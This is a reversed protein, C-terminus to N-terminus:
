EIVDAFRTAAIYKRARSSKDKIAIRTGDARIRVVRGVLCLKALAQNVSSRLSTPAADSTYGVEPLAAAIEETTLPEAYKDLSWIATIAEALNKPTPKAEVQSRARASAGRAPAEPPTLGLLGDFSSLRKKQQEVLSQAYSRIAAVQSEVDAVVAQYAQRAERERVRHAEIWGTVHQLQEAIEVLSMEAPNAASEPSFVAQRSEM